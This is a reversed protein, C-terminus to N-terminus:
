SSLEPDVAELARALAAFEDGLAALAQKVYDVSSPIYQLFSPNGKVEDIFVFRAADKLKRQVTQMHFWRAVTERAVGLSTGVEDCYAGLLEAFVGPTLQVYSDRLLAVADYVIPGRMADQFDLVVLGTSTVMLNHSQFDRHMIAVPIEALEDVLAALEARAAAVAADPLTSGHGVRLRWELYHDVEWMLTDRGFLREAVLPPATAGAARLDPLVGLAGRYLEALRGPDASVAADLDLSGCDELWISREVEDIAYIDPVPVGAASLWRAVSVFPEDGVAEIKTEAAGGEDPAGGIPPLLMVIESRGGITARAYRRLSAHPPLLTCEAGHAGRVRAASRAARALWHADPAM